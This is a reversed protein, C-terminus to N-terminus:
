SSTKSRTVSKRAATTSPKSMPMVRAISRANPAMTSFLSPTDPGALAATQAETDLQAASRQPLYDARALAQNLIPHLLHIWTNANSQSLGFLQGQVTQTPYQKLYVLIFLLKDEITPLPSNRYATYARGIRDYGEVTQDQLADAFSTEFHPVLHQFETHTLGTLALLKPDNEAIAQYRLM